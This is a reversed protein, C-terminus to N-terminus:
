NSIQQILFKQIEVLTSNNLQSLEKNNLNYLGIRKENYVLKFEDNYSGVLYTDGLKLKKFPFVIKDTYNEVATLGSNSFKLQLFNKYEGTKYWEKGAILYSESQDKAQKKSKTLIPIGYISKFPVPSVLNLYKQFFDLMQEYTYTYFQVKTFDVGYENWWGRSLNMMIIEYSCKDDVKNSCDVLGFPIISVNSEDKSTGTSTKIVKLSFESIEPREGLIYNAAMYEFQEELNEQSAIATGVVAAIGLAAALGDGDQANTYKINSLVIILILLKKM